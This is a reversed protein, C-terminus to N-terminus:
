IIEFEKINLNKFIEENGKYSLPSIPSPHYIPIVKFGKIDFVKGVVESFKKYKFDLITKTASDGLSLIVKPKIEELQMFLFKKCNIGCKNLYKRDVPYCKIAELFFTDEITLNILDLLKQLVVGSPLLKHNIDYWAVGSRRWGNNAPAEGLIVIDRRKGFSVTKSSPFKEVMCSCASCDHIKEDILSLKLKLKLIEYRIRTNDNILIEERTKLVYNSYDIKDTKFQDSTFDVIKDNIHNFYHSIDNVKIKCIDGGFYDNIILAVIACHGLTKNDNNWQNRCTPYCTEKSYLNNLIKELKDLKM